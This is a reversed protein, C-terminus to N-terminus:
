LEQLRGCAAAISLFSEDGVRLSNKLGSCRLVAIRRSFAITGGQVLPSKLPTPHDCGGGSSKKPRWGSASGM